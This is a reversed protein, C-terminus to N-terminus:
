VWCKQIDPGIVAMYKWTGHVSNYNLLPAWPVFIGSTRQNNRTFYLFSSYNKGFCEDQLVLAKSLIVQALWIVYLGKHEKTCVSKFSLHLHKCSSHFNYTVRGAPCTCCKFIKTGQLWKGLYNNAYEPIMSAETTPLWRAMMVYGPQAHHFDLGHQFSTLWDNDLLAGGIIQLLRNEHFIM